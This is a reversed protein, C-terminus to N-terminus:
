DMLALIDQVTKLKNLNELSLVKGFKGDFMAIIAIIGMSDWEELSKLELEGDLSAPEVDLAEAILSIKEETTM